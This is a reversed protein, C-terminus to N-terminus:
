DLAAARINRFEVKMKLGPHVQLGLPAGGAYRAETYQSIQEGNLWVTFISGKAEIRFKNWDDPKFLKEIGKTQGAEPYGVKPNLPHKALYFAGTMDKKLSRSIGFQVQLEPERFMVGSDIEGSWRAELEVVFNTYFRETHLIHGKLQENNEGVLVGNEVRWFPNPDPVKWGTLDAGNFIPKLATSNKPATLACGLLMALSLGAILARITKM